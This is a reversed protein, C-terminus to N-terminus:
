HHRYAPIDIKQFIAQAQALFTPLWPLAHTDAQAGVRLFLELCSRLKKVDVDWMLLVEPHVNKDFLQTHVVATIEALRPGLVPHHLYRLAEADDSIGYYQTNYSGTNPDSPRTQPFIYWVWHTQKHGHRLEALASQYGEPSKNQAIVFREIDTNALM